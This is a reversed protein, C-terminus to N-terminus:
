RRAWRRRLYPELREGGTLKMVIVIFPVVMALFWAVNLKNRVIETAMDVSGAQDSGAPAVLHQFELGREIAGLALTQTERLETAFLAREAELKARQENYESPKTFEILCTEKATNCAAGRLQLRELEQQAQGQEAVRREYKEGTGHQGTLAYALVASADACANKLRDRAEPALDKSGAREADLLVKYAKVTDTQCTVLSQIDACASDQFGAARMCLSIGDDSKKRTSEGLESIRRDLDAVQREYFSREIEKKFMAEHLPGAVIYGLGMMTAVRTSLFLADSVGLSFVLGAFAGGALLTWSALVTFEFWPGVQEPDWIQASLICGTALLMPPAIWRLHRSWGSPITFSPLPKQVFSIAFVSFATSMVVGLVVAIAVSAGRSEWSAFYGHFLYSLGLADIVWNIAVAIYIARAYGVSPHYAVSDDGDREYLLVSLFPLIPSYLSTPEAGLERGVAPATEAAIGAELAVSTEDPGHEPRSLRLERHSITVAESMRM